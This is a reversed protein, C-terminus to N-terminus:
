KQLFYVVLFTWAHHVRFWTVTTPTAALFKGSAEAVEQPGDLYTTNYTLQQIPTASFRIHSARSKTSKALTALTNPKSPVQQEQKESHSDAITKLPKYLLIIFIFSM